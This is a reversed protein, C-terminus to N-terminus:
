FLSLTTLWELLKEDFTRAMRRGLRAIRLERAPSIDHLSVLALADDSSNELKGCMIKQVNEEFKAVGPAGAEKGQRECPQM